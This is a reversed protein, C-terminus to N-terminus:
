SLKAQMLDLHWFATLPKLAFPVVGILQRSYWQPLVNSGRAAGRLHRVPVTGVHGQPYANMDQAHELQIEVIM